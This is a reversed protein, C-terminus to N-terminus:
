DRNETGGIRMVVFVSLWNHGASRGPLQLFAHRSSGAHKM